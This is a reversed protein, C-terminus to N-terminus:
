NAWMVYKPNNIYKSKSEDMLLFIGDVVHHANICWGLTVCYLAVIKLEQGGAKLYLRHWPVITLVSVGIWTIWGVIPIWAILGSAWRVIFSALAIIGATMQKNDDATIGTNGLQNFMGGNLMLMYQSTIDDSNSFTEELLVEDLHYVDSSAKVNFSFCLVLLLASVIKKM